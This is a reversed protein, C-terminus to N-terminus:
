LDVIPGQPVAQGTVVEIELSIDGVIYRSNGGDAPQYELM